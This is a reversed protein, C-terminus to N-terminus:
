ESVGRERFICIVNQVYRITGLGFGVVTSSFVFYLPIKLAISHDGSAYVNSVTTFSNIFLYATFFLSVFTTITTIIKRLSQPLMNVVSDVRLEAKLKISYSYGIFMFWIFCYRCLEETWALSNNFFYRMVIQILMTLIITIMFIVLLANEINEDLWRLFKM